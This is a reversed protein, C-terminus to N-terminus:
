LPYGYDALALGCAAALKRNGEAYYDIILQRSEDSMRAGAEGSKARNLREVVFRRTGDLSSSVFPLYRRLSFGPFYAERMQAYGQKIQRYRNGFRSAAYSIGVNRQESRVLREFTEDPDIGLFQSINDCFSKEDNVLEEYLIVKIGGDHFVDKYLQFLDFFCHQRIMWNDSAGEIRRSVLEDGLWRDFLIDRMTGKRLHHFYLSPLCTLQNRITMLINCPGFVDRLREAILRRDSSAASSLGEESLLLPKNDPLGIRALAEDFDRKVKAADYGLGDQDRVARIIHAPLREETAGANAGDPYHFPKGLYAIQSHKAFVERQLTTTATKAAGIHLYPRGM